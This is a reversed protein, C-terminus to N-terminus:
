SPTWDLEKYCAFGQMHAWALLGALWILSACGTLADRHSFCHWMVSESKKHAELEVINATQLDPMMCCKRPSLDECIQRPM